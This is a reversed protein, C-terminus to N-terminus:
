GQTSGGIRGTQMSVSLCISVCERMTASVCQPDVPVDAHVRAAEDAAASQRGGGGCHVAWIASHWPNNNGQVHFCPLAQMVSHSMRKVGRHLCILSPLELKYCESTGHQAISTVIGCRLKNTILLYVCFFPIMCELAAPVTLVPRQWLIMIDGGPTALWVMCLLIGLQSNAHYVDCVM